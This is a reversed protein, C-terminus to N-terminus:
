GPAGRRHGRIRDRGACGGLRGGDADRTSLAEELPLRGAFVASGMMAPAFRAGEENTWIVLEVPRSLVAGADHLAQLVELGAMVGYTGDYRGAAPQSDVHSGFLVAGAGALKGPRRLFVNGVADLRRTCGAALAAEVVVDRARGDEPSAALRHLGGAPTGGILAITELSDWLRPGLCAPVPRCAAEPM